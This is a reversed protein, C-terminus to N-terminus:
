SVEVWNWTYVGKKNMYRVKDKAQKLNFLKAETQHYTVGRTNKVYLYGNNVYACVMYHKDSLTREVEQQEEFDLRDKFSSEKGLQVFGSQTHYGYSNGFYEKAEEESVFEMDM